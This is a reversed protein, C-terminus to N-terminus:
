DTITFDLTIIQNQREIDVKIKSENMLTDWLQLLKHTSDIPHSNIRKIIDGSRIGLQYLLNSPPIRVMHYGSVVGNINYPKAAINKLANDMNKSMKQQLEAKSLTKSIIQSGGPPIVNGQPNSLDEKAFVDLVIKEGNRTLIVKTEKIQKLIYGYVDNTLGMSKNTYLAFVRPNSEGKKQILARAIDSSDSAITGMLTLDSASSVNTGDGVDIGAGVTAIKFFGSNVITQYYDVDRTLPGQETKKIRISEITYGPDISYKVTQTITMAAALSFIIM